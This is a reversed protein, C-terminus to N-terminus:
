DQKGPLEVYFISGIGERSEIWVRGKLLDVAKKVIALGIGTGPYADQSHLRQFINFIKKHYREAIGIGNDSVAFIIKGKTQQIKLQVEPPTDPKHYRVANSFLNLFIQRLLTLDSQVTPLHDPLIITARAQQIESSLDQLISKFFEKLPIPQFGVARRGVRSYALLDQILQDMRQSAIVINNFYHKGRDDLKDQYDESIIRAFGHIARLPARLDHSVSYAFSKLEENAAQLQATRELVRRELDAEHKKVQEYLRANHLGIAIETVLTELFSADVEFDRPEFAGLVIVGIINNQSILPLAAFSQWGTLEYGELSFRNDKKIDFSFVPQKEQVVLRCLSESIRHVTSNNLDLDIKSFHYNRLVPQENNTLYFMVVDPKFSEQLGTVAAQIVQDLDLSSSIQHSLKYVRSLEQVRQKLAEEAKKVDTIDLVTGALYFHSKDDNAIIDVTERLYRVPGHSPNTRFELSQSKHTKLVKEHSAKLRAIDDPHVLHYYEELTPTELRPVLNLNYYMQKSWWGTDTEPYYEWSGLRARSQAAELAMQSKRLASEAKKWETVDLISVLARHRVPKHESVEISLRLLTNRLEGTFTKVVTESEFQTEGRALTILEEKFGSLSEPTFIKDLNGLLEEKNRAKHLYLAANNVDIIKVMRICKQVESPNEDFYRKFNTVGKERLQNLYKNLESFDGEWLAIPAQEFLHRYRTESERLARLIRKYDTIDRVFAAVMPKDDMHLISISVDLDLVKGDKCKHQTEFRERGGTILQQIRHVVEESPIKAEIERINKGILEERTYGIMDCYSPNVDVIIGDPNELIFGDLSTELVQNFFNLMRLARQTHTLIRKSRKQESIDCTVLVFGLPHGDTDRLFSTYAEVPFESGDKKSCIFEIGKESGIKLAEQLHTEILHQQDVRILEAVNKGIIEEKRHYGYMRLLAQNVDIITGKLNTIILGERVSDFIISLIIDQHQVFRDFEKKRLQDELEKIRKKLQNIQALMDESSKKM